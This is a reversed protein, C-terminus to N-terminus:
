CVMWTMGRSESYLYDLGAEAAAGRGGTFQFAPKDKTIKEGPAAGTGWWLANRADEVRRAKVSTTHTYLDPRGDRDFDM